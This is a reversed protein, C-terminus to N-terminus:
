RRFISLPSVEGVSEVILSMADASSIFVKSKTLSAQSSACCMSCFLVGVCGNLVDGVGIAISFNRELLGLM